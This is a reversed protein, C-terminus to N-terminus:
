LMVAPVAVFDHEWQARAKEVNAEAEERAQAVERPLEGDEFPASPKM